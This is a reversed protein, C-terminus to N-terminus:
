KWQHVDSVTSEVASVNATQNYSTLFFFLVVVVVVVIVLVVVFVAVFRGFM